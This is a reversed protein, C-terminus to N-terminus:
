QVKEVVLMKVPMNTPVFVLGLQERLVKQLATHEPDRPNETWTIDISCRNTLGTEDIIPKPSASQLYENIRSIPASQWKIEIQYGRESMNCINGALPPHLGPANPNQLILLLADENKTEPHGVWGLKKKLEDRLAKRAGTPLTSVYDYKAWPRGQPFIMRAQPWNYAATVINIVPQGVGVFKRGNAAINGGQSFITPSIEVEPSLNDLEDSTIDLRRWQSEHLRAKQIQGITVTATGAAFLLGVGALVAIKTKTWAMIKVLTSTSVSAAGGKALAAATAIKALTVPAAQISNISLTEAIATTSSDVGRKLFIRRLKEVARSVRKKATDESAGLAAGVDAFNKNEFFRLVLADHDKKGLKEMAHDLLPAIQAWTEPEPENMISQAYVERERLSRRRWNRLAESSVYRATRCLWGPLITGACLTGAKRALIIFVTQTIEEALHPHRVQRLAVSYVLNVHRSVLAAFADESHDRFYARLLVLDDNMM